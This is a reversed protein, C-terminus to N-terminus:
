HDRWGAGTTTRHKEHGPAFQSAQGPHTQRQGPAFYRAQGPTKQLQGPANKKASNSHSITGSEAMAAVPAGMLVAIAALTSIKLHM